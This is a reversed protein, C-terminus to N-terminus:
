KTKTLHEIDMGTRYLNVMMAIELEIIGEKGCWAIGALTEFQYISNPMDKYKNRVFEEITARDKDLIERVIKREKVKPYKDSHKCEEIFDMVAKESLKTPKSNSTRIQEIIGKYKKKSM